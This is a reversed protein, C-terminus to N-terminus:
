QTIFDSVKSSSFVNLLDVKDQDPTVWDNKLLGQTDKSEPNLSWYFFSLKNAQLYARFRYAWVRDKSGAILKSGWEGVVVANGTAAPLQGFNYNWIAPMNEPFKPDNFFDASFVGPGYSHPSYVLKTNDSLVVPATVAYQLSSGSAIGEM